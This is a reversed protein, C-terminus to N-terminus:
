PAVEESGECGCGLVKCRDVAGVEGRRKPEGDLEDYHESKYDDCECVPGNDTTM